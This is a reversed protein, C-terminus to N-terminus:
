LVILFRSAEGRGAGVMRAHIASPEETSGAPHHERAWGESRQDSRARSRRARRGRGRGSRRDRRARRRAASGRADWPVIEGGAEVTPQDPGASGPVGDRAQGVVRTEVVHTRARDHHRRCCAVDRPRDQERAVVVKGEGRSAASVAVAPVRERVPDHDVDRLHRRDSGARSGRRDARARLHDVDRRAERVRAGNDRDARAGRDPDAPQRESATLPDDAPPEPQRAVRELGRGDHEGVPADHRAVRRLVRVQEPREAARAAAVQAEHRRERERRM